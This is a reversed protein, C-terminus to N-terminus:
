NKTKPKQNASTTSRKREIECEYMLDTGGERGGVRVLWCVSKKNNIKSNKGGMKGVEWGGTGVYVKRTTSKVIKGEGNGCVVRHTVKYSLSRSVMVLCQGSTVVNFPNNVM